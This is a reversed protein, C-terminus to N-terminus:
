FMSCIGHQFKWVSLGKRTSKNIPLYYLWEVYDQL